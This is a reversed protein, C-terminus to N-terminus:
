GEAQRCTPIDQVDHTGERFLGVHPKEATGRVALKARVRWEHAAGPALKFNAVGRAAFFEKAEALLPPQFLANELSCGSCEDFHKCGLESPPPIKQQAPTLKERQQRTRLAHSKAKRNVLFYPKNGPGGFSASPVVAHMLLLSTTPKSRILM